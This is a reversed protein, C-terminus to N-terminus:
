LVNIYVFIMSMLSGPLLSWLEDKYLTFTPLM